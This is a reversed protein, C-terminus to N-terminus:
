LSFGSPIVGGKVVCLIGDRIIIGHAYDGDAKGEPSLSVGDGIRANKDIIAHRIRCNKGIGMPPVGRDKDAQVEKQTQYFDAGMMVVDELDSNEGLVSRIGVVCHKLSS